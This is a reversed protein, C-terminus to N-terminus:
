QVFIFPVFTIMQSDSVVSPANFSCDGSYQATLLHTNQETGFPISHTADSFNGNVTTGGGYGGAYPCYGTQASAGTGVVVSLSFSLGSVVVPYGSTGGIQTVYPQTPFTLNGVANGSSGAPITCANPISTSVSVNYIEALIETTLEAPDETVTGTVTFPNCYSLSVSYSVQTGVPVSPGGLSGSTLVTPGLVFGDPTTAVTLSPIPGGSGDECTQLAQSSAEDLYWSNFGGGQVQSVLPIEGNLGPPTPLFGFEDETEPYVVRVRRDDNDYVFTTKAADAAVASLEEGVNDCAGVVEEGEPGDNESAVEAPLKITKLKVLANTITVSTDSSQCSSLTESISVKEKKGPTGSPTLPPNFSVSGQDNCVVSGVSQATAFSPTAVTAILGFPLGFVALTAVLFARLHITL